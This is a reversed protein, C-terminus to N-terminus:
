PAIPSAAGQAPPACLRHLTRDLEALSVPKGLVADVHPPYDDSSMMAGFGTVMVVPTSPKLQKLQLALADGNLGAMGRDTIVVDFAQRGFAALAEIGSSVAVVRHGLHELGDRAAERVADDDEVLLATLHMAQHPEAVPAAPPAAPKLPFSLRFCTGVGPTSDIEITGDHRNITGFVMALGMGTGKDGKTTFFPEFCRSRTEENMGVGTDQVELRVQADPGPADARTRITIAGGAPLADAANLLLNTVAERLEAEDGPVLPVEGPDLTVSIAVGRGTAEDNWRPETLAIAQRAVQNLDVPQIPAQADRPRYFERLRAVVKAADQAGARILQLYRLLKAQDSRNDDRMLLLDTFGLVPALANNVDHAIGSALLGLAHLREQQIIQAQMRCLKDYATQLQRYLQVQTAALGVQEGVQRLFEEDIRSFRRHARRHAALV